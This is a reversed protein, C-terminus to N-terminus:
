IKYFINLVKSFEYIIITSKNIALSKGIAKGGITLAAITSTTLLTVLSLNFNTQAAIMISLAVGTSGSVIGCIDGIVDNCFSSVKEANQILKVALKSGSVKKTAMSNFTKLDGVTVAIGIMDFVINLIIFFLTILAALLSNVNPVIFESITSFLFSISFALMTVIIIWTWNVKAKEKIHTKKIKKFYKEKIVKIKSM